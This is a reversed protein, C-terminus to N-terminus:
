KITGREVLERLYDHMAKDVQQVVPMNGSCEIRISTHTKLDSGKLETGDDFTFRVVDEKVHRLSNALVDLVPGSRDLGRKKCTVELKINLDNSDFSNDFLLDEPLKGGFQGIFSTLADWTVGKPRFKMTKASATGESPVAASAAGAGANLPLNLKFAQVHHFKRDRYEQPSRDNLSVVAGDPWHPWKKLLWNLHDELHEPGCSRTPMLVVHNKWVAFLLYGDLFETAAAGPLNPAAVQRIPWIKQKPSIGVIPQQTGQVYSSMTVCLQAQHHRPDLLVRAEDGNTGLTELRSEPLSLHKLAEEVAAQLDISVKPGTFGAHKYHIEKTKKEM